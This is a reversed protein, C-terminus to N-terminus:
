CSRVTLYQNSMAYQRFRKFRQNASSLQQGDASTGQWVVYIGLDCFGNPLDQNALGKRCSQALLSSDFGNSSTTIGGPNLARIQTVNNSLLDFSNSRCNLMSFTSTGIAGNENFYCDDDWYVKVVKGGDVQIVLTVIPFVANVNSTGSVSAYRKKYISPVGLVNAYFNTPAGSGLGSGPYLGNPGWNCQQPFWFNNTECAQPATVAQFSGQVVIRTLVDFKVETFLLRRDNFILCIPVYSISRKNLVVPATQEFNCAIALELVMLGLFLCSVFSIKSLDM